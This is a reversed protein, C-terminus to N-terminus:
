EAAGGILSNQIAIIRELAAEIDGLQEQTVYNNLESKKAYETLDVKQTELEQVQTGDWWYDPVDTDRIYLNDGLKLSTVNNNNDLWGYMDSLTDFVYGSARGKVISELTDLKEDITDTMYINNFNTGDYIKCVPEAENLLVEVDVPSVGVPIKGDARAIYYSDNLKIENNNSGVPTFIGVEPQLWWEFTGIFKWNLDYINVIAYEFGIGDYEDEDSSYLPQLEERTFGYADYIGGMIEAKKYVKTAKVYALKLNEISKGTTIYMDGPNSGTSPIDNDNVVGKFSTHDEVLNEIIESTYITEYKEGNYLAYGKEETTVIEDVLEPEINAPIKDDSREIYYQEDLTLDSTDVTWISIEGALVLTATKIFNKNKDYINVSLPDTYYEEHEEETFLANIDETYFGTGESVLEDVGDGDFDGYWSSYILVSNTFYKYIPERTINVVKYMDGTKANTPLNSFDDKTGKFKVLLNSNNLSSDLYRKNVVDISYVPDAECSVKGAFWANGSWDLTHANSRNSDSSGNGVIHAYSLPNGNDTLYKNFKGQVHQYDGNAITNRGEAHAFRGSAISGYGEAHTYENTAQTSHGEAHAAYNTAKTSAGEAHAQAGTAQSGKGEAHSAVGEAITNEGETHSNQGKAQTNKGEAHSSEGIAQSDYGESHASNGYAKTNRGEAHSYEGDALTSYGESHSATKSAVTQIGEAHSETGTAQTGNGESHSNNGSAVTNFGEAHSRTGSATTNSGESHSAEGSATTEHGEAHSAMKTAETNAGESHSYNGTAATYYGEAHASEKSATTNTGEAHAYIGSAVTGYGEAHTAENQAKSSNGEAHAYLGSAQSNNGEAHARNGSATTGVGEAHSYEGSAITNRGEAHASFGAKTNRGEAHAYQGYAVTDRGTAYSSRDAALTNEGIAFANEGLPIEGALPKAIVFFNQDDMTIQNDEAMSTFPLKDVTIINNNIATITACNYYKANNSMSIVDGVEYSVTFPETPAVGQTKTLTIENNEFNINSYYYGMIGAVSQNGAVVSRLAIAQNGEGLAVAGKGNAASGNEFGTQIISADAEGNTININPTSSNIKENIKNWLHKVGTKDLYTRSHNKAYYTNATLNPIESPAYSDGYITYWNGDAGDIYEASPTPMTGAYPASEETGDGAFTFNPGLTIKELRPTNNFMEYTVYSVSGNGSVQEGYKAKRTDFSSLNLEKLNECKSFMQLFSVSNSTDFNELGIIKEVLSIDFMQGFSKVKSTKFNSVDLIKNGVSHFMAEMNEASSTDWNEIGLVTIRSNAFMHDFDIVKSVDWKSLDLTGFQRCGWFVFGMDKINSTNWNDIGPNKMKEAQQFMGRIETLSSINWNSINGIDELLLCQSFMFRTSVVKSVDWNTLNGISSLVKCEQCLNIMNEVSSVNWNTLDVSQLARCYNFLGAITTTKETNFNEIGTITTLAYCRQFM